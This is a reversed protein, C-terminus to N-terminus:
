EFTIAAEIDNLEAESWTDNLIYNKHYNVYFSIFPQSM